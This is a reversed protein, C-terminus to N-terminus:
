RTEFYSYPATTFNGFVARAGLGNPLTSWVAMHWM